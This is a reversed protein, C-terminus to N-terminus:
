GRKKGFNEAFIVRKEEATNGERKAKKGFMQLKKRPIKEGEPINMDEHLLGKHSPKILSAM